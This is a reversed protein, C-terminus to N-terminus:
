QGDNDVIIIVGSSVLFSAASDFTTLTVGFTEIEEELVDNVITVNECIIVEVIAPFYTIDTSEVIYDIGAALFFLSVIKVKVQRCIYVCM